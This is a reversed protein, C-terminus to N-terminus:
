RGTTWLYFVTLGVGLWCLLTLVVGGLGRRRATQTQRRGRPDMLGARMKHLDRGGLRYTLLGLPLGLLGPIVLAAFLGCYLSVTGALLLLEGRDPECDRRLRGPGEQSSPDGEDM